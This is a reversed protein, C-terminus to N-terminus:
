QPDPECTHIWGYAHVYVVHGLRDAAWNGLTCAEEYSTVESYIHAEHPADPDMLQPRADAAERTVNIAARPTM